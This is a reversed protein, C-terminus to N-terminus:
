IEGGPRTSDNRIRRLITDQRTDQEVIRNGRHDDRKTTIDLLAIEPQNGSDPAIQGIVRNVVTDDVSETHKVFRSLRLFSETAPTSQTGFSGSTRAYAPVGCIKPARVSAQQHPNTGSTVAINRGYSRWGVNQKSVVQIGSANLSGM